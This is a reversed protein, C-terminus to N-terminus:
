GLDWTKFTLKDDDNFKKVIKKDSVDFCFAEMIKSVKANIFHGGVISHDELAISAHAHIIPVGEEDWSINGLFSVLEAENFKKSKYSGDNQLFGLEIDKLMGIAQISGLGIKNDLAFKSLSEIVNDNKQLKIIFAKEKKIKM